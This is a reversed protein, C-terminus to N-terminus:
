EPKTTGNMFCLLSLMIRLPGLLELGDILVLKLKFDLAANVRDLFDVQGRFGAVSTEERATCTRSLRTRWCFGTKDINFIKNLATVKMIKGLGEPYSAADEWDANAAVGQMKISCLHSREKLRMNSVEALKLSKKELNRM